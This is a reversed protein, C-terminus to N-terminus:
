GLKRRTEEIFDKDSDSLVDDGKLPRSDQDDMREAHEAAWEEDTPPTPKKAM